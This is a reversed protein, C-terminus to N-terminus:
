LDNKLIFTTVSPENIREQKIIQDVSFGQLVLEYIRLAREPRMLRGRRLKIGDPAILEVGYKRKKKRRVKVEKLKYFKMADRVDRETRHLCAAIEVPSVGAALRCKLSFWCIGTPSIEEPGDSALRKYEM